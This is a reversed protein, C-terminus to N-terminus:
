IRNKFHGVIATLVAGGAGGAILHALISVLGIDGTVGSLEPFLASFTQGAAVGGLAGSISAALGGLKAKEIVTGAANGAAVGAIIQIILNIVAASM